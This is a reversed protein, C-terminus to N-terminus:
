TKPLSLGLAGRIPRLTHSAWENSQRHCPCTKTKRWTLITTPAPLKCTGTGAVTHPVGGGGNQSGRHSLQGGLGELVSCPLPCIIFPFWPAKAQGLQAPLICSDAGLLGTVFPTPDLPPTWEMEAGLFDGFTPYKWGLVRTM